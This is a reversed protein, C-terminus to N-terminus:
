RAAAREPLNAGARAPAGPAGQASLRSSVAEGGASGYVPVQAGSVIRADPGALFLVVRAIESPSVWKSFDADPGDELFAGVIASGLAGTGGTVIALRGDDRTTESM